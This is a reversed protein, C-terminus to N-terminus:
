RLHAWPIDQLCHGGPSHDSLTGRTQTGVPTCIQGQPQLASLVLGLAAPLLTISAIVTTVVSVFGNGETYWEGKQAM